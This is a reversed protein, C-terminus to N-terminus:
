QSALLKCANLVANRLESEKRTYKNLVSNLYNIKIDLNADSVIYHPLVTNVIYSLNNINRLPELESNEKILLRPHETQYINSNCADHRAHFLKLEWEKHSFVYSISKSKSQLKDVTGQYVLSHQQVKCGNYFLPSWYNFYGDEDVCSLERYSCLTGSVKNPYIGVVIWRSSAIKKGNM